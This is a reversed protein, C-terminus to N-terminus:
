SNRQAYFVTSWVGPAENLKDLKILALEFFHQALRPLRHEYAHIHYEGFSALLGGAKLDTCM